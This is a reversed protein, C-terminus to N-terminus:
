FDLSHALTGGFYLGPVGVTEYHDNILPYKEKCATQIGLSKDLMSLDVKWGLCSIVRDAVIHNANGMHVARSNNTAKQLYPIVQPDKAIIDWKIVLQYAGM